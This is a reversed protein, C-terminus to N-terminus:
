AERRFVAIFGSLYTQRFGHEEALSRTWGPVEGELLVVVIAGLDPTTRAIRRAEAPDDMPVRWGIRRAEYWLNPEFPDGQDQIVLLREDPTAAALERGQNQWGLNVAGPAFFTGMLAVWWLVALTVCIAATLRLAGSRSVQSVGDTIAVLGLGGLIALVAYYPLQYYDHVRNLNAFIGISAVSSVLLAATELRYRTRLRPVALAGLVVILIGAITLQEQFRELVTRWLETDTFTSGLLWPRLEEFSLGNSAINVRDAHRLWVEFLVASGVPWAVMAVRGALPTARNWLVRVGIILVPLGFVVVMNAKGLTTVMLAAGALTLWAWSFRESLHLAALLMVLATMLFFPDIMFARGYFVSIPMLALFFVAGVAALRRGTLRRTIGYLAAAAGAFSMISVLRGLEEHFGAVQSLAHVIWQYFPFELLWHDGGFMPVHYDFLDFGFREYLWVESATQTQRYAHQDALPGHLRYLRMLVGLVILGAAIASPTRALRALRTLHPALAAAARHRDARTQM